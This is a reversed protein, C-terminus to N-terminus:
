ILHLFLSHLLTNFISKIVLYRHLHSANGLEQQEFALYHKGISIDASYNVNGEWRM